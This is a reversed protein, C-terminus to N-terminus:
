TSKTMKKFNCCWFFLHLHKTGPTPGHSHYCWCHAKYAGPVTKHSFLGLLQCWLQAEHAMRPSNPLCCHQSFYVCPLGPEWPKLYSQAPLCKHLLNALFRGENQQHGSFKLWTSNLSLLSIQKTSPIEFCHSVLSAATITLSILVSSFCQQVAHPFGHKM